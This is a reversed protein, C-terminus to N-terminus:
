ETTPGAHARLLIAPCTKVNNGSNKGTYWLCSTPGSQGTRGKTNYDDKSESNKLMMLSFCCITSM